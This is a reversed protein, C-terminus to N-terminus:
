LRSNNVSSSSPPLPDLTLFRGGSWEFRVESTGGSASDGVDYLAYALTVEDITHSVMKISESGDSADVGVEGIDRFFYAREAVAGSASTSKGILVHLDDSAGWSNQQVLVYGNVFMFALDQAYHPDFQPAAEMQYGPATTFLNAICTDPASASTCRPDNAQLASAAIVGVSMVWWTAGGTGPDAVVGGPLSGQSSMLTGAIMTASEDSQVQPEGFLFVGSGFGLSGGACQYTMQLDRGSAEIQESTAAGIPLCDLTPALVDSVVQTAPAAKVLLFAPTQFAAADFPPRTPQESTPATTSPPKVTPQDNSIGPTFTPALPADTNFPGWHNQAALAVTAACM